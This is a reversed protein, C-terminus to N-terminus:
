ASSLINGSKFNFSMQIANTLFALPNKSWIETEGDRKRKLKRKSATERKRVIVFINENVVLVMQGRM